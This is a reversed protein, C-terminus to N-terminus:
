DGCHHRSKRKLKGKGDLNYLLVVIQIDFVFSCLYGYIEPAKKQMESLFKVQNMNHIGYHQNFKEIYEFYQKKRLFLEKLSYEKGSLMKYKKECAKVSHSFDLSEFDVDLPKHFATEIWDTLIEYSSDLLLAQAYKEVIAPQDRLLMDIIKKEGLCLFGNYASLYALSSFLLINKYVLAQLDCGDAKELYQMVVTKFSEDPHKLSCNYHKVFQEIKEAATRGNGQPDYIPKAGYYYRVETTFKEESFYSQPLLVFSYRLGNKNFVIHDKPKEHTVIVADVDSCDQM